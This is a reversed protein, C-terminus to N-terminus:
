ARAITLIFVERAGADKLARAAASATAGTTYVDDILLITENEILRPRRVQFAQEVSERRARADMGARHRETHVTRILSAEDIPLHSLHALARGLCAAQNFGREKERQAHLPLPIIKTAADLPTRQAAARLLGALRMAIYPERKLTLVAARLAGEYIGVARAATFAMEACRRCNVDWRQEPAVEALALAGCKWCCTEDGTFIRTGAWCAACAPADARREVSAAGCGACATPYVLALAANYLANIPHSLRM